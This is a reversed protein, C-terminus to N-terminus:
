SYVASGLTRFRLSILTSNAGILLSLSVAFMTCIFSEEQLALSIDQLMRHCEEM